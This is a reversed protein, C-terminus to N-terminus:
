HKAGVLERGARAQPIATPRSAGEMRQKLAGEQTPCAIPVETKFATDQTAFAEGRKREAAQHLVVHIEADLPLSHDAIADPVVAHDLTIPAYNAGGPWQYTYNWFPEKIFMPTMAGVGLELFLVRDNLHKELFAQYKRYQERYLSGELFTFGRVWPEMVAGCRPCRPVLEDPIACDRHDAIAANVFETTDYVADHCPRGCQLWGWDGQIFAVKEDGFVRRFLQDQNTTVVFFEKDALLEKWDWYQQPVPSEHVMQMVRAIAYQRQEERPYPYYFAPFVGGARPGFKEYIDGFYTLFTPNVDYYSDTGAASMGSAGGVVVADAQDILDLLQQINGDTVSTHNM